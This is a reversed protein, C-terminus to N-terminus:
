RAPIQHKRMLRYLSTRSIGLASAARRLIRDSDALAREIDLKSLNRPLTHREVRGAPGGPSSEADSPSGHAIEAPLLDVTLRDDPALAVM